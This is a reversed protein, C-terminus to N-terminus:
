KLWGESLNDLANGCIKDGFALYVFQAFLVNLITVIVIAKNLANKYGKALRGHQRGKMGQEIPLVVSHILYLFAANGMFLPYNKFDVYVIKSQTQETSNQMNNAANVVVCILAFLLALLGAQSTPVLLRYSRFWSILMTLSATIITCNMQTFFAYNASVMISMQNGIFVLYSGCVGITMSLIGFWAIIFGIKGFAYEAIQPYTPKSLTPHLHGCEALWVLTFSTLYALLILSISSCLFGGQSIAWPLEFSAAGAFCKCINFFVHFSSSGHHKDGVALKDTQKTFATVASNTDNNLLPMSVMAIEPEDDSDMLDRKYEKTKNRNTRDTLFVDVQSM